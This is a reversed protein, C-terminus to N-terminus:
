QANQAEPQKMRIKVWFFSDAPWARWTDGHDVAEAEPIAKLVQDRWLESTMGHRYFYGRRCTVTGDRHATVANEGSVLERVKKVFQKQDM